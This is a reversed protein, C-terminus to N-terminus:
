FPWNMIVDIKEIRYNEEYGSFNFDMFAQALGANAFILQQGVISPFYGAPNWEVIKGAYDVIAWVQMEFSV